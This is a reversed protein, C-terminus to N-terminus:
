TILLSLWYIFIAVSYGIILPFFIAKLLIIAGVFFLATLLFKFAELLYLTNLISKPKKAKNNLLVSLLHLSTLVAISSGVFSSRASEFGSFYFFIGAAMLGALIQSLLILFAIEKPSRARSM